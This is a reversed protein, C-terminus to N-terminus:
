APEGPHTSWMNWMPMLWHGQTSTLGAFSTDMIKPAPKFTIVVENGTHLGVGSISVPEKITRQKKSM